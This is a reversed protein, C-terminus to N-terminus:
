DEVLPKEDFKSYLLSICFGFDNIWCNLVAYDSKREHHLLEVKKIQSLKMYKKISNAMIEVNRGVEYDSRFYFRNKLDKKLCETLKEMTM